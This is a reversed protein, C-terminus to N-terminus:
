PGWVIRAEVGYQDCRVPRGLNHQERVDAARPLSKVDVTNSSVASVDIVLRGLAGKGPGKPGDTLQGRQDAHVGAALPLQLDELLEWAPSRREEDVPREVDRRLDRDLREVLDIGPGSGRGLELDAKGSGATSRCRCSEARNSCPPCTRRGSEIRVLVAPRATRRSSVPVSSGSPWWETCPPRGAWFSGRERHMLAAPTTFEVITTGSLKTTWPSVVVEPM